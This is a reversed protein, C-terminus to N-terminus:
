QMGQLRSPLSDIGTSGVCIGPQCFPESRVGPGSSYAGKNACASMASGLLILVCLGVAPPVSAM